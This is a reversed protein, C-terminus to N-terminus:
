LFITGTIRSATNAVSVIENGIARAREAEIEIAMCSDIGPMEVKIELVVMEGKQNVQLSYSGRSFITMVTNQNKSEM